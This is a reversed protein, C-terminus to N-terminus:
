EDLAIALVGYDTGGGDPDVPCDGFCTATTPYGQICRTSGSCPDEGTKSQTWAPSGSFKYGTLYLAVYGEIHYEKVNYDPPQHLEEFVPVIVVTELYDAVTDAPCEPNPADAGPDAEYWDDELDGTTATCGVEAQELWGFGGPLDQGAPGNCGETTNGDHFLFTFGDTAPGDGGYATKWQEYTGPGDPGPGDPPPGTPIGDLDINQMECWSVTLPIDNAGAVAGWIAKARARVTAGDFGIVQAFFPKFVTGGDSTETETIVEITQADLDLDLFDIDAANDGAEERLPLRLAAM